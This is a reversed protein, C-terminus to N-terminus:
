NGLNPKDDEDVDLEKVVKGVSIEQVYYQIM